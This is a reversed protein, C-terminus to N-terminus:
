VCSNIGGFGVAFTEQGASAGSNQVFCFSFQLRNEGASGSARGPASLTRRQDTNTVIANM